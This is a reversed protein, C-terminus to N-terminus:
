VCGGCVHSSGAFTQQLEGFLPPGGEPSSLSFSVVALWAGEMSPTHGLCELLSGPVQGLGLRSRLAGWLMAELIRLVFLLLFTGM